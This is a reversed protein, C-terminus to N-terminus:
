SREMGDNGAVEVTMGDSLFRLGSVAVLEGNKLGQDVVVYGGPLLEGSIIKRQTVQQTKTDVVWVYDGEVPRHCLATQPIAVKAVSSTGATFDLSLKGSMGALLLKDPNPLLATLLYSLNNPTTSKSIEAIGAEYIREPLADFRLRVTKLKEARAAVDQTVYAEIRLQGIDIFSIVPQAAKVDQYKEIYVEGAYGNFPALLRTDKLENVATEYATKASTYDAKAKEFTSAAVNNKEYLVQIREFEAKAQNYIAETREKRIRFDRPDIGAIVEGCKYYNGTYVEFRDIPGGVRFSLESSRFPKAIFPYETKGTQECLKAQTVKVIVEPRKEKNESNKCSSVITALLLLLIWRTTMKM